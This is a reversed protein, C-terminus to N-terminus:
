EELEARAQKLQSLLAPNSQQMQVVREPLIPVSAGAASASCFVEVHTPTWLGETLIAVLGNLFTMEDNIEAVGSPCLSSLNIDSSTTILGAIFSHHWASYAPRGAAPLGTRYVHKYCASLSVLLVATVIISKAKM